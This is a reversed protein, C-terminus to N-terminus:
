AYNPNTLVYYAHRETWSPKKQEHWERAITEFSNESNIHKTIKELKKQQSPDINESLLKRAEDRKNRAEKLSVETYV